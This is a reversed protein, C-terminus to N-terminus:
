TSNKLEAGRTLGALRVLAYESGIRGANQLLDAVM